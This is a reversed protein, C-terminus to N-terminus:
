DERTTRLERFDRNLHSVPPQSSPELWSAFKAQSHQYGLMERDLLGTLRSDPPRRARSWAGLEHEHRTLWARRGGSASV